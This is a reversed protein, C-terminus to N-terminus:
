LNRPQARFSPSVQYSNPLSLTFVSGKNEESEVHLSGNMLTTFTKCLVLGIGTGKEQNTGMTTKGIEQYGSINFNEVQNKLLGVGNDTVAIAIMNGSISSSLKITENKATFKIANSILNRLVLATMNMDALCISGSKIENVITINKQIATAHLANIVEQACLQVDFKEIIPKFGQMQSSAWNLLNEMMASTYGLTTKLHGAYKTLKEQNINGEELLQIFSILSNVPTRMDHSVVSFIRDKVKGLKELEVKQESVIKNLKATKRQTYYVFLASGLLISALIGLILNVNRNFKLETRQLGIQKDKIEKELQAKLQQQKLLNSQSKKENELDAQRKLFTLRQLTKEQNSLLLQQEQQKALLVQRQLEGNTIKQKLQYDNEKISFDLQLRRRTIEREKEQDIIQEKVKIFARYNVLSQNYNGLKEDNESLAEYTDKQLVLLKKDIAIKLAENLFGAVKTYEKNGTYLKAMAILGKAYGEDDELSKYLDISKQQSQLAGATEGMALQIEGIRSNASATLAVDAISDAIKLSRKYNQLSFKLRESPGIGIKIIEAEPAEFYIAGVSAYGVAEGRASKDKIFMNLGRKVYPMANSYQGLSQYTEGINLYLGSLNEDDGLQQYIAVAKQNAELTKVYDPVLTYLAGLNQYVAAVWDLDNAQRYKERCKAYLNEAKLIDSRGHFMLAWRYYISGAWAPKHLKDAFSIAKLAADEVGKDNKKIRQQQILINKLIVFKVSDEKPHNKNVEYLSDLKQQPSKVQASVTISILLLCCVFLCTKSILLAIKYNM